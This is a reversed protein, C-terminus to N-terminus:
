QRSVLESAGRQVLRAVGVGGFVILLAHMPLVYRIETHAASGPVLYYLVTSLLIGTVMLDRRAAVYVGFVVIPLLLYRVVSQIMGLANVYAALVGGQWNLPLCKESTVNIGSSGYYALPEGAVKLMGWMRRLMVGAYWVPHQKIFFLAEHAREKDRRIGDPWQAKIRTGEPLGMRIRERDLMKEDGLLFGNSRGLDTEGLGEWLNIGITGGTPTFDPFTFYNRLVIPCIVLLTGLFVGASLLLRHKRPGRVFVFMAIAWFVCLYLPNV